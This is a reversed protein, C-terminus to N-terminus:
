ALRVPAAVPVGDSWSGMSFSPTTVGSLNQDLAAWYFRYDLTDQRGVGGFLQMMFDPVIGQDQIPAMHDAVVPPEGRRDSTARFVSRTPAGTSEAYLQLAESPAAITDADGTLIVTRARNAPALAAHDIPTISILGRVFSPISATANLSPNAITVSVPRPGGAGEWTGAMLGGLSHGFLHIQSRDALSGLRGLAVNTADIARRLMQRQDTDSLLGLLGGKNFQPYIVIYGQRALHNIHGLYIDPALLMFGHLYVVVPASSGNRLRNPVFWWVRTGDSGSGTEYRSVSSAIYGGSGGPGSTPQGPQTPSAASAVGALLAFACVFTVLATAMAGRKRVGREATTSGRADSDPRQTKHSRTHM